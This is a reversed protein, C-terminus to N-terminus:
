SICGTIRLELISRNRELQLLLFMGNESCAADKSLAGGDPLGTAAGLGAPSANM